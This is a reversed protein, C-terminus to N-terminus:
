RQAFNNLKGLTEDSIPVKVAFRAALLLKAIKTLGTSSDNIAKEIEPISLMPTQLAIPNKIVDSWVSKVIEAFHEEFVDITKFQVVREFLYSHSRYLLEPQKKSDKSILLVMIDKINPDINAKIDDYNIKDANDIIEQINLLWEAVSNKGQYKELFDIWGNVLESLNVRRQIAAVFAPLFLSTRNEYLDEIIDSTQLEIEEIELDDESERITKAILRDQTLKILVESVSELEGDRLVKDFDRFTILYITVSDGSKLIRKRIEESIDPSLGYHDCYKILNYELYSIPTSGMDEIGSHKDPNSCCGPPPEHLTTNGDTIQQLIWAFTHGYLKYVAFLGIVKGFDETGKISEYTDYFAKFAGEYDGSKWKAFGIDVLMGLEVTPGLEFTKSREYGDIFHNAAKNWDDLNAAAVGALRRSYYSMPDGDPWSNPWKSFAEDWLALANINDKLNYLVTAKADCYIAVELERMEEHKKLIELAARRDELYENQIIVIGRLAYVSLKTDSWKNALPIVNKFVRICEDWNPKVSKHEHLWVADVLMRSNDAINDHAKLM